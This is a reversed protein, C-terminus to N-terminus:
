PRIRSRKIRLQSESRNQYCSQDQIISAGLTYPMWSSCNVQLIPFVDKQFMGPIVGGTLQTM